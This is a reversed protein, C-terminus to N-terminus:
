ARSARKMTSTCGQSIKDRLTDSGSMVITVGPLTNHGYGLLNVCSALFLFWPRANGFIRCLWSQTCLKFNFAAGSQWLSKAEDASRLHPSNRVRKRITGWHRGIRFSSEPTHFDHPKRVLDTLM